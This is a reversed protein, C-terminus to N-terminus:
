LLAGGVAQERQDLDLAQAGADIGRDDLDVVIEELIEIRRPELRHEIRQGTALARRDARLDTALAARRHAARLGQVLRRLAAFLMSRSWSRIKRLRKPVCSQRRSPARARPRHSSVLPSSARPRSAMMSSILFDSRRPRPPAPKGVPRLHDNM